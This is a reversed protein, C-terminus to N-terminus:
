LDVTEKHFIPVPSPLPLPSLETEEGLHTEVVERVLPITISRKHRLSFSNLLSVWAHASEFSREIHKLLFLIVNTEVKVQLDEFRKQVVQTLLSEDPAEIKIAPVTSLRSRLDPLRTAWRAPPIRSILLLGGKYQVLHNYIHFFKEEDQILHAKELILCDPGKTLKDLSITDFERGEIRKAGTNEQWIHSLHTKGCGEDGYIALCSGPWAPWSRLWLFAEQNARSIVFEQFNLRPPPDLPLLLQQM